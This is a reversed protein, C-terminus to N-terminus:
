SFWLISLRAWMGVMLHKIAQHKVAHNPLPTFVSCAACQLPEPSGQSHPHVHLGLQPQLHQCQQAPGLTHKFRSTIIPRNKIEASKTKVM